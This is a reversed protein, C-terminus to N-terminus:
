VAGDHSSGHTISKLAHGSLLLPDREGEAAKRIIAAAMAEVNAQTRRESPLAKAAREFSARLIALDEPGFVGQTLGANVGLHEFTM